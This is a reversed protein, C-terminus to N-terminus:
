WTRDLFRFWFYVPAGGMSWGWGGVILARRLEVEQRREVVKQALVDGM